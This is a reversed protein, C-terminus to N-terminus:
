LSVYEYINAFSPHKPVVILQLAALTGGSAAAIWMDLFSGNWSLVCILGSLSAAILCRMFTSYIPPKDLIAKLRITGEKASIEDHVVARYVVHVDHLAGLALRSPCKIVHSETAHTEPDGFSAIIIGPLYIFQANVELIRTTSVLQSEIRHSPAGYRILAGALAIIFARRNLM